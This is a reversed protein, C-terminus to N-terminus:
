AEMALEDNEADRRARAAEREKMESAAQARKAEDLTAHHNEMASIAADVATMDAGPLDLVKRIHDGIPFADIVNWENRMSAMFSEVEQDLDEPDVDDVVRLMAMDRRIMAEAEESDAAMVMDGYSGGEPFDDWTMTVYFLKKTSM